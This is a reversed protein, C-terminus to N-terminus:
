KKNQYLELKKEIILKENNPVKNNFWKRSMSSTRNLLNGITNALDNNIIDVFRKNQFDGDNGLSIDKLLYWRVAEKGYKSLLLYPDLVNGLSKGMKQGERTLFGHGFVKKPVKMGASLLM